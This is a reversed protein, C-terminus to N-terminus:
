RAFSCRSRLIPVVTFLIYKRFWAKDVNVTEYYPDGAAANQTNSQYHLIKVIPHFCVRGDFNIGREKDVVPTAVTAIFM